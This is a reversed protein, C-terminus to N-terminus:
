TFIQVCCESKWNAKKMIDNVNMGLDKLLTAGGHRLSHTSVNSWPLQLEMALSKLRTNVYSYSLPKGHICFLKVGYKQIKEVGGVAVISSM